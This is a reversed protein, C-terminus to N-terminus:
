EGNEIGVMEKWLKEVAEFNDCYLGLEYDRKTYHDSHLVFDSNIMTENVGGKYSIYWTSDNCVVVNHIPIEEITYSVKDFSCECINYENFFDNNVKILGNKCKNCKDTNKVFTKVIRFLRTAVELDDETTEIEYFEIDPYKSRKASIELKEVYEKLESLENLKSSIKDVIESLIFVEM